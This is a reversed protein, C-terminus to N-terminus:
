LFILFFLNEWLKLWVICFLHSRCLSFVLCNIIIWITIMTNDIVAYCLYFSPFLHTNTVKKRLPELKPFVALVKLLVDLTQDLFIFCSLMFFVSRSFLLCLKWCNLKKKSLILIGIKPLLM